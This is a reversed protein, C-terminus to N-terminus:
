VPIDEGLGPTSDLDIEIREDRTEVVLTVPVTEEAGWALQLEGDRVGGEASDRVDFRVPISKKEGPELSYT